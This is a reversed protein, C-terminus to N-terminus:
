WHCFFTFPVQVFRDPSVAEVSLMGAVRASLPLSYRQTILSAM